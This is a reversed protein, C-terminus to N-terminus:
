YHYYFMFKVILMSVFLFFDFFFDVGSSKFCKINKLVDLINFLTITVSNTIQQNVDLMVSTKSNGTKVSTLLTKYHCKWIEAIKSDGVCGDVKTAIPLNSNIDQQVDKWFTAMDNSMMSRALADAWM